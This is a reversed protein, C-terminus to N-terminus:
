NWDERLDRLLFPGAQGHVHRHKSELTRGLFGSYILCLAGMNIDRGTAVPLATHVDGPKPLCLATGRCVCVGSFYLNLCRLSDWTNGTPWSGAAVWSAEPIWILQPSPISLYQRPDWLLSPTFPCHLKMILCQLRLLPSSQGLPVANGMRWLPSAWFTLEELTLRQM